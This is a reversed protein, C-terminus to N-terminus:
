NELILIHCWIASGSGSMELVVLWLSVLLHLPSRTSCQRLSDLLENPRLSTQSCSILVHLDRDQNSKCTTEVQVKCLSYQASSEARSEIDDANAYDACVVKFPPMNNEHYGLM